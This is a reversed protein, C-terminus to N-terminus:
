IKLLKGVKKRDADLALFGYFSGPLVRKFLWPLYIEAMPLCYLRGKAVAALAIRAVDSAQVPNSQMLKGVLKHASDDATGRSNDMIGTKFFSPCLVSVKINAKKLEAYMTESLAIVGAKVVNYPGMGPASLLGAASGVNLIHGARQAKMRPVWSHCGYIVGMLNIEVQWKWDQLSIEGVEGAVAVGANNVLLDTRGGFWGDAVIALREVAEPDRVDVLEVRADGGARSVLQATEEAAEKRVDAILVRAGAAGLQECFARGLGGSGGTVVATSNEFTM